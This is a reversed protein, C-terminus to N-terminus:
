EVLNKLTSDSETLNTAVLLRRLEQDPFKRKLSKDTFNSLVELRIKAKLRRRNTSKLFGNLGVKDWKELIGIQASNVGFTDSNLWFVNLKRSAQTALARLSRKRDGMIPQTNTQSMTPPFLFHNHLRTTLCSSPITSLWKRHHKSM